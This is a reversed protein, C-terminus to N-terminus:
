SRDKQKMLEMVKAIVDDWGCPCPTDGTGPCGHEHNGYKRLDALLERVRNALGDLLTNHFANLNEIAERHFKEQAVIAQQQEEVKKVLENIHTTQKSM